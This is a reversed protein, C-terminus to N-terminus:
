AYKKGLLSVIKNVLDDEYLSHRILLEKSQITGWIAIENLFIFHERELRKIVNEADQYYKRIVPYLYEKEEAFHTIWDSSSWDLSPNLHMDAAHSAGLERMFQM